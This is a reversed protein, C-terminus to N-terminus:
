SVMKYHLGSGKLFKLNNKLANFLRLVVLTWQAGKHPKLSYIVNM